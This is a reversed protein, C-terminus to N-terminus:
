LFIPDAAKTDFILVQRLMTRAYKPKSTASAQLIIYVERIANKLFGIDGNKIVNCFTM